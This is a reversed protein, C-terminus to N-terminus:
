NGILDVHLIFILIYVIFGAFLMGATFQILELWEKLKYKM